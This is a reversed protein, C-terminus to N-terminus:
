PKPLDTLLGVPKAVFNETGDIGWESHVYERFPFTGTSLRKAHGCKPDSSSVYDVSKNGDFSTPKRLNIFEPVEPPYYLAWLYVREPIHSLGLYDIVMFAIESESITQKLITDVEEANAAWCFDRNKTKLIGRLGESFETSNSKLDGWIKKLASRSNSSRQVYKPHIYEINKLNMVQILQQSRPVGPLGILTLKPNKLKNDEELINQIINTISSRKIDVGYKGKQLLLERFHDRASQSINEISLDINMNKLMNRSIRSKYM